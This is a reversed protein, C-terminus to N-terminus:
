YPAESCNAYWYNNNFNNLWTDWAGLAYNMATINILSDLDFYKRVVFGAEESSSAAGVEATVQALWEQEKPGRQHTEEM